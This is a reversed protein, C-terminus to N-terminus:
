KSATTEGIRMSQRDNDSMVQLVQWYILLRYTLGHLTVYQLCREVGAVIFWTSTITRWFRSPIISLFLLTLSRIEIMTHVTNQTYVPRATIYWYVLLISTLLLRHSFEGLLPLRFFMEVQRWFSLQSQLSTLQRSSMGCTLAQSRFYVIVSLSLDRHGFSTSQTFVDVLHCCWCGTNKYLESYYLITCDAQNAWNTVAGVWTFDHRYRNLEVEPCIVQSLSGDKRPRYFSYWSQSPTLTRTCGHPLSYHAPSGAAGEWESVAYTM